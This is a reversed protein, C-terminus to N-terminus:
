ASSTATAPASFARARAADIPLHVAAAFLGFGIGAMWMAFYDGTVDYLWGGLWVGTFSGIQHSLFVAGYLTAMYKTGCISSVLGATPPVTSLWLIGMTAAFLLITIESLPAFVFVAIVASRLFYIMSLMRPKSRKAAIMGSSYAGIVNFLGILGIALGQLHPFGSEALFPPLHVTIFAIQFGCVFFGFTLLLYSRHALAASLAASTSMSPSSESTTEGDSDAESGKHRRLSLALPLTAAMSVAFLFLAIEWGYSAIAAQGFPAFVFQGLSGSATAVGFAWSRRSEPLLQAFASMVIAFSSAAIGGGVMVGATLFLLLPTDSFPILALGLAYLLAGFVLVPFCGRRDAIAGAIPQALGWMLNQLALAFAYIERGWGHEAGVPATFLGMASRIGFSAMAILCGCILLLRLGALGSSSLSSSSGIM